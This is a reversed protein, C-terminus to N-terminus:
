VVSKRDLTKKILVEMMKGHKQGLEFSSNASINAILLEEQTAINIACLLFVFFFYLSNKSFAISTSFTMFQNSKKLNQFLNFYIFFKKEEDNENMLYFLKKRIKNSSHFDIM